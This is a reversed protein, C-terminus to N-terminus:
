HAQAKSRRVLEERSVDEIHTAIWWQNGASDQLGATRDGYFQDSPERLSTAGAQMGRKYVADVDQVYIYLTIPMAKDRTEPEGLMVISDGVKVEAHVIGGNPNLHRGRETADFTQKLFDIVKAAGPVVLFPTITHYGEPIPKVNRSMASKPM